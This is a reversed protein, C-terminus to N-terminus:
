IFSRQKGELGYQNVKVLTVKGDAYGCLFRDGHNRRGAPVHLVTPVSDLEITQRVRCHELLRLM